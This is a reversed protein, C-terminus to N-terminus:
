SEQLFFLVESVNLALVAFVNSIESGKMIKGIAINKPDTGNKTGGATHTELGRYFNPSKM